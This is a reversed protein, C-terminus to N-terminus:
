PCQPTNNITITYNSHDDFNMSCQVPLIVILAADISDPRTTKDHRTREFKNKVYSNIKVNGNLHVELIRKYIM